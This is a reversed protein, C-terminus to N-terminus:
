VHLIYPTEPIRLGSVGRAQFRLTGRALVGFGVSGCAAKAWPVDDGAGEYATECCAGALYLTESKHFFARQMGCDDGLRTQKMGDPFNDKEFNRMM